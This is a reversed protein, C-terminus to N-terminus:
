EQIKKGGRNQNAKHAKLHGEVLTGLDNALQSYIKHRSSHLYIQEAEETIPKNTGYTPFEVM